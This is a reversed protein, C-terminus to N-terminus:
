PNIAGTKFEYYVFLLAHFHGGILALSMAEMPVSCENNQDLSENDLLWRLVHVRGGRAANNVALTSYGEGLGHRILWKLLSLDGSRAAADLMESRFNERPRNEHLWQIVPFHGNGAASVMADKTSNVTSHTCVWQVVNRHGKEAAKTVVDDMDLKCPYCFSEGRKRKRGALTLAATYLYQVVELHGNSAASAM